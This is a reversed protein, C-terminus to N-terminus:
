MDELADQRGREYEHELRDNIFELLQERKSQILSIDLEILIEILEAHTM